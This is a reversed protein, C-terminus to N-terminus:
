SLCKNGKVINKLKTCYLCDTCRNLEMSTTKDVNCGNCNPKPCTLCLSYWGLPHANTLVFFPQVPLEFM